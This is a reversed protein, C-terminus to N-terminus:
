KQHEEGEEASRINENRAMPEEREQAAISNHSSQLITTCESPVM